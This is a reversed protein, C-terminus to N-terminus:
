SSPATASTPGLPKSQRYLCYFSYVHMNNIFVVVGEQTYDMGEDMKEMDLQLLSQLSREAEALALIKPVVEHWRM